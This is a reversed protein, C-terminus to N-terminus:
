SKKEITESGKTATSTHYSISVYATGKPTTFQYPVKNNKANVTGLKNGAADFYWMRTAGKAYYTTNAEVPIMMYTWYGDKGSLIEPLPDGAALCYVDLFSAKSLLPDSSPNLGTGTAYDIKLNNWSSLYIGYENQYAVRVVNKNNSVRSKTFSITATNGQVNEISCFVTQGTGVQVYLPTGSSGEFSVTLKGSSFQSSDLVVVSSKVVYAYVSRSRTGNSKELYMELHGPVSRDFEFSKTTSSLPIESVKEGDRLIVAKSYGSALIDVGGKASSVKYNYKDGFRPMLAYEEQNSVGPAAPVEDVKQYRCLSYGEFHNFFEEPTWLKRRCLPLVAESIEIYAVNGDMDYLIDSCMTTHVTADVVIDGPKIDNATYKGPEAITTVNPVKKMSQSNYSGPIDLAYQVLKSCVTGFYTAAKDNTSFLNETYLMSDKNEVATLFSELSVNLGVYTDTVTTGSYPIGRYTEGAEFTIVTFEGDIKKVGPMDAVPTWEVDTLQYARAVANKVGQSKLAHVYPSDTQVLLQLGSAVEKATYKGAENGLLATKAEDANKHIGAVAGDAIAAIKGDSAKYLFIGGAHTPKQTVYSTYAKQAEQGAKTAESGNNGSDTNGSSSNGSSNNSSDTNGSSNNGSSNNGSNSNGSNNSGSDTNDSSNNGSNSNGSDTNDSSNNGSDTNSSSNNGSDTNGSSNNGSSNGDTSTTGSEILSDQGQHKGDRRNSLLIIASVALLVALLVSGVIIFLRKRNNKMTTGGFGFDHQLIM